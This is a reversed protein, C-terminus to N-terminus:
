VVPPFISCASDAHRSVEDASQPNRPRAESCSPRALNEDVVKPSLPLTRAERNSAASVKPCDRSGDPAVPLATRTSRTTPFPRIQDSGTSWRRLTRRLPRCRFTRLRSRPHLRRLAARSDAVRNSQQPLRRRQGERTWSKGSARRPLKKMTAVAAPVPM